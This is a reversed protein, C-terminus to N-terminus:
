PGLLTVVQVHRVNENVGRAVDSETIFCTSIFCVLAPVLVDLSFVEECAWHINGSELKEILANHQGRYLASIALSAFMNCVLPAADLAAFSSVCFSTHPPPPPPSHVEPAPEQHLRDGRLYMIRPVSLCGAYDYSGVKRREQLWGWM